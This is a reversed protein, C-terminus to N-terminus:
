SIDHSRESISVRKAIVDRKQARGTVTKYERKALLFEAEVTKPECAFASFPEGGDTKEPNNAYDTRDRLCQAISKGKNKHM